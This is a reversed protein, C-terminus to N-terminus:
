EDQEGKRSLPRGSSRVTDTRDTLVGPRTVMAWIPVVILADKLGEASLPSFPTLYPVGFSKKGCLYILLLISVVAIGLFGMIEAFILFAFRLLTSTKMLPPIIFSCIGTLATVIVLPASAIGASVAADGLVVAGVISVAQGIARPMRIGAERLIEFTIGMLLAENFSSFPIGERSAAMTLILKFPIVTHHFTTLAVYIAPLYIATFLALLRLMRIFSAFYYEGYYDESAQLTEVFLFPITLVTPTGDVIIAVRGELLKAAVKDPKESNGVMPFLPYKGDQIYQEIYGSDTLSDQKIVKLRSKVEDLIEQKVIGQIYCVALRTKTVEGLTLTEIKFKPNRIKRRLLVMNTGLNETFGERPGKVSVETDPQEVSRKDPSKVGVKFAKDEGDIFIVADGVTIEDVARKFTDLESLLSISLVSEKLFNTLPMYIECDTSGLLPKIVNEDLINKDTFGELHAVIVKVRDKGFVIERIVFDSCQSFIQQLKKKVEEISKPIAEKPPQTSSKNENSKRSINQKGDIKVPKKFM